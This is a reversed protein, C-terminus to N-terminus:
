ITARIGDPSALALYGCSRVFRSTWKRVLPSKNRGVGTHGDATKEPVQVLPTLGLLMENWEQGAILLEPRRRRIDPVHRRVRKIPRTASGRGSRM